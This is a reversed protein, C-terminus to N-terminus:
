YKDTEARSEMDEERSTHIHREGFNKFFEELKEQARKRNSYKGHTANAYLRSM